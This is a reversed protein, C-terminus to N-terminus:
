GSKTDGEQEYSQIRSAFASASVPGWKGDATVGLWRQVSRVGLENREPWTLRRDPPPTAKTVPRPPPTAGTAYALISEIPIRGPDWNINYPAHQHGVVGTTATWRARTLRAVGKRGSVKGDRSDLFPHQAVPPITPVADLIPRIVKEGLWRLREDPWTSTNAAHGVVEVQIVGTQDLKRVSYSARDLPIHQHLEDRGWDVTLHPHIGMKARYHSIAGGATPGETTHLIIKNPPIKHTYGLLPRGSRGAILTRSYGDLWIM